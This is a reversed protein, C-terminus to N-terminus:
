SAVWVFDFRKGPEFRQPDNNSVLGHVGFERAVFEVADSQIDCASIEASPASLTLFRLLRGYGCAFDLIRFDARPPGFLLRMIQQAANHQQLAVNFYQSVSWNVERFYNLS